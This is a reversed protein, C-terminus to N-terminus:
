IRLLNQIRIILEEYKFPKRNYYHLCNYFGKVGDETQTKATLFHVPVDVNINRIEDAIAFGDKDPLMIDLVCIDPKCQKFLSMAKGGSSEMFVEFGRSELTEKVIKALFIEDEVYLVKVVMNKM